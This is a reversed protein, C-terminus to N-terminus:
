PMSMVDKNETESM